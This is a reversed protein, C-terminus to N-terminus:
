LVRQRRDLTFASSRGDAVKVPSLAVAYTDRFKQGESIQDTPPTVIGLSQARIRSQLGAFGPSPDGPKQYM